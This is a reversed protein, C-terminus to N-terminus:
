EVFRRGNWRLTKQRTTGDENWYTVIIDKGKRPLTYTNADYEVDFGVDRTHHMTKTANNYRYFTLDDYQGQGPKGHIFLWSSYAFLKHKKDAENWFCMEVKVSHDENIFQCLIYGNKEDVIVTVDESQPLGHRYNYLANKVWATAEQDCEDEEDGDDYFLYAWAFDTITPKAGQYSVRVVDQAALGLACCALIFTFALRKM